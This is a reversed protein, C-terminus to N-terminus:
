KRTYGCECTDSDLKKGCEPCYKGSDYVPMVNNKKVTDILRDERVFYNILIIFNNFIEREEKDMNAFYYITYKKITKNDMEYSINLIRSNDSPIMMTNLDLTSWAALNYDNIQKEVELLEKDSISYYLSEYEKDIGNKDEKNICKNEFDVELHHSYGAMMGGDDFLTVSKLMGKEIELKKLEELSILKPAPINISTFYDISPTVTREHDSTNKKNYGCTDCEGKENLISGCEPCFKM